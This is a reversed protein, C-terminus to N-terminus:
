KRVFESVSTPKSIDLQHFVVNMLGEDHLEKTAKLGRGLEDRAALVLTLGEQALYLLIDLGVPSRLLCREEREGSTVVGDSNVTVSIQGSDTALM